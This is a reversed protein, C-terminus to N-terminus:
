NFSRGFTTEQWIQADPHIKKDDYMTYIRMPMLSDAHPTVLSQPHEQLTYLLPPMFHRNMIVTDDAVLVQFM